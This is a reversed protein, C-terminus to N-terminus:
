KAIEELRADKWNVHCFDVANQIRDVLSTRFEKEYLTLNNKVFLDEFMFM